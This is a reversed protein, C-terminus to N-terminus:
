KSKPPLKSLRRQLSKSKPARSLGQELVERSEKNMGLDRYLDSLGAYAQPLKPNYKIAQQFASVAEDTNGLRRFVRASETSVLAVYGNYGGDKNFVNKRRLVYEFEGAATRLNKKDGPNMNARVVYKLGHCFHQSHPMGKPIVGTAYRRADPEFNKSSLGRCFSPLLKIEELSILYDAHTISSLMLVPVVALTKLNFWAKMNM